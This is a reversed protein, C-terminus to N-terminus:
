LIVVEVCPFGRFFSGVVWSQSILLSGFGIASSLGILRNFATYIAGAM